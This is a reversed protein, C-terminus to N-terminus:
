KRWFAPTLLVLVSFIELRGLLMGLTCIWIQVDSLPQYTRFPGVLGLGVGTNNVSALVAGLSSQFELGTLLLAFTLLTATMFYLFIFALVSNGLRDPVPRGGIRLPAVASPHVLLKLERGAQRSLLLTRFMRIGGGPSGTSCLICCLFLMWFPAFVPWRTYDDSVLGSTTAVSVVNFLAYRLAHGFSPYVGAERLLVAIGNVSAILM